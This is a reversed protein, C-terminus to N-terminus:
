RSADSLKNQLEKEIDSLNRPRNEAYPYVFPM